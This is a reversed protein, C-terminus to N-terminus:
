FPPALVHIHHKKLPWRDFFRIRRGVGAIGASGSGNPHCRWAISAASPIPGELHTTNRKFNGLVRGSFLPVRLFQCTWVVGFAKLECKARKFVSEIGQTLRLPLLPIHLMSSGLGYDARVSSCPLRVAYLPNVFCM